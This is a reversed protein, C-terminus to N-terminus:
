ASASASSRAPLSVNSLTLCVVEREARRILDGEAVLRREELLHAEDVVRQGIEVRGVSSM